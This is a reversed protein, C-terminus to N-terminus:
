VRQILAIMSYPRMGCQGAGMCVGLTACWDCGFVTHAVPELAVLAVEHRRGLLEGRLGVGQVFSAWRLPAAVLGDEGCDERVDVLLM